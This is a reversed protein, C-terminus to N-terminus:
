LKTPAIQHSGSERHEALKDRFQSDTRQGMLRLDESWKQAIRAFHALREHATSFPITWKKPLPYHSPKTTAARRAIQARVRSSVICILPRM